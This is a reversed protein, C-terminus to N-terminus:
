ANTKSGGGGAGGAAGAGNVDIEGSSFHLVTDFMVQEPTPDLRLTAEVMFRLERRHQEGELEVMAIKVNALRPEFIGLTEEVQRLLQKRSAVSDRSMSTIDPMGYNLLSRCLEEFEEVVPDATRRTNLLWELDRQVSIKFQRLSEGYTVRPDAPSRPDEDTLRDLVSPQVTREIERKAM